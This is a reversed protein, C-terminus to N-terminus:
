AAEAAVGRRLAQADRQHQLTMQLLRVVLAEDLEEIDHDFAGVAVPEGAASRRQPAPRHFDKVIPQELPHRLPLRGPDICWIPSSHRVACRLYSRCLTTYRFLTDTRTSRPQRRVRLM